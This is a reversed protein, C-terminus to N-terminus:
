RERDLGAVPEADRDQPEHAVPPAVDVAMGVADDSAELARAFRWDYIVVTGVILDQVSRSTRSVAVWVLLLPFSACLVARVAARVGGLDAGAVTTVRLGLVRDGYTRGGTAWSVAFYVVLALFGAAYATQYSVIPFSFQAGQRLFRVGAAGLYCVVLMVVVVALDIVNAAARTILGAPQGQFARAEVPVADTRLRPTTM